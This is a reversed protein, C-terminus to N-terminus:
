EKGIFLYDYIYPIVLNYPDAYGFASLYMIEDTQQVIKFGRASYSGDKGNPHLKYFADGERILTDNDYLLFNAYLSITDRNVKVIVMEADENYTLTITSNSYSYPKCEWKSIGKKQCSALLLSAVAITLLIFALTKISNKM